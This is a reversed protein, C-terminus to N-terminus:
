QAILNRATYVFALIQGRDQRLYIWDVGNCIVAKISMKNDDLRYRPRRLPRKGQSKGFFM